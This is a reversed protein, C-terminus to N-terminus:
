LLGEKDFVLGVENDNDVRNSVPKKLRWVAPRSKRFLKKLPIHEVYYYEEDQLEMIKYYVDKDLINEIYFFGNIDIDFFLHNTKIIEVCFDKHFEFIISDDTTQMENTFSDKIRDRLSHITDFGSVFEIGVCSIIEIKDCILQIDTAESHTGSLDVHFKSNEKKFKLSYIYTDVDINYKLNTYNSFKIKTFVDHFGLKELPNLINYETKITLFIEQEKKELAHVMDDHFTPFYGFLNFVKEYGIIEKIIDKM